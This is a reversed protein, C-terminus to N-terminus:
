KAGGEPLAHVLISYGEPTPLPQYIRGDPAAVYPQGVYAFRSEKLLLAQAPRASGDGPIRAVLLCAENGAPVDSPSLLRAGVLLDTGDPRPAEDVSVLHEVTEPIDLSIEQPAGPAPKGDPALLHIRPRDGRTLRAQVLHRNSGGNPRGALSPTAPDLTPLETDAPPTAVATDPVGAASLTITDQDGVTAAPRNRPVLGTLPYVREHGTEVFVEGDRVLLATVPQDAPLAVPRDLVLAGSRDWGLVRRASDCDLTYVRESNMALFRPEPADVPITLLPEGAPSILMIRHNVSDLLAVVGDSAVALAEPGRSLGEGPRQLGVQGPGDGWPLTVLLTGASVPPDAPLAVSVPAGPSPPRADAREAVTMASVVAAAVLLCGTVVAAKGLRRRTSLLDTEPPPLRWSM